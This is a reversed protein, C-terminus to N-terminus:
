GLWNLWGPNVTGTSDYWVLYITFVTGTFVLNFIVGGYPVFISLALGSLYVLTHLSIFYVVRLLSRSTNYLHQTVQSENGTHLSTIVISTACLGLIIIPSGFIRDGRSVTSKIVWMITVFGAFVLSILICFAEFIYTHVIGVSDATFLPVKFAVLWSGYIMISVHGLFFLILWLREVVSDNAINEATEIVKEKDQDTFRPEGVLMSLVQIMVWGFILGTMAVTFWPVGRVTWVKVFVLAVSVNTFLAIRGQKPPLSAIM